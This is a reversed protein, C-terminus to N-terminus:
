GRKPDRCQQEGFVFHISITNMFYLGEALSQDAMFLFNKRGSDSVVKSGYDGV